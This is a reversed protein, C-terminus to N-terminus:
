FVMGGNECVVHLQYKYINIFNGTKIDFIAMETVRTM